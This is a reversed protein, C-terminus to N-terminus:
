SLQCRLWRIHIASSIKLCFHHFNNGAIRYWHTFLFCSWQMLQVICWFDSCFSVSFATSKLQFLRIAAPSQSSSSYCDFQMIISQLQFSRLFHIFATKNLELLSKDRTLSFNIMPYTTIHPFTLSVNTQRIVHLIFLFAMKRVHISQSAKLSICKHLIKVSKIRM